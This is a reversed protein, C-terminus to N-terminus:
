ASLSAVLGSVALFAVILAVMALYATSIQREVRNAGPEAAVLKPAKPTVPPAAPAPEQDLSTEGPPAM